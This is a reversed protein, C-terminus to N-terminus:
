LMETGKRKAMSLLYNPRGHFFIHLESRAKEVSFGLSALKGMQEQFLTRRMIGDECPDRRDSFSELLTSGCSCNRFVEVFILGDDNRSQKLGSADARLPETAALFEIPNRYERGCSGCRKPFASEALERLGVFLEECLYTEVM